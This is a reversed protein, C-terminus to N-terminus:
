FFGQQRAVHRPLKGYAPRQKNLRNVVKDMFNNESTMAANEHANMTPHALAGAAFYPATEAFLSRQM